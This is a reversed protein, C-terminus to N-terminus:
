GLDPRWGSIVAPDGVVEVESPTARGFLWLYLSEVTGTVKAPADVGGPQHYARGDVAFSLWSAKADTAVIGFPTDPPTWPDGWWQGRHYQMDCLQDVGELSIEKTLPSPQEVAMAADWVHVAVEMITQRLWFRAPGVSNFIWVDADLDVDGAHNAFRAANEEIYDVQSAFDDPFPPRAAMAAAIPDESGPAITLNSYYWGGYEMAVHDALDTMTWDPCSPIACDPGGVRAAQAFQTGLAATLAIRQQDDMPPTEAATM